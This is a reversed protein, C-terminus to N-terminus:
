GQCCRITNSLKYYARRISIHVATHLLTYSRQRNLEHRIVRLEINDMRDLVLDTGHCENQLLRHLNWVELDYHEERGCTQRLKEGLEETTVTVYCACLTASNSGTVCVHHLTATTYHIM